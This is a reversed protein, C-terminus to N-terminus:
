HIDLTVTVSMATPPEGSLAWKKYIQTQMFNSIHGVVEQVGSASFTKGKEVEEKELYFTFKGEAELFRLCMEDSGLEERLEDMTLKFLPPNM